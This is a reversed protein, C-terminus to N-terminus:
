VSSRRRGENRNRRACNAHAPLRARRRCGVTKARSGCMQRGGFPVVAVLQGGGGPRGGKGLPRKGECEGRQWNIKARKRVCVCVRARLRSLHVAISLSGAALRRSCVSGGGIRNTYKAAAPRRTTSLRRSIRGRVSCDSGKSSAPRTPLAVVSAFLTLRWKVLRRWEFPSSGPLPKLEGHLLLCSSLLPPPPPPPSSKKSTGVEDAAAAATRGNARSPASFGPLSSSAERAGHTACCASRRWSEGSEAGGCGIQISSAFVSSLESSIGVALVRRSSVPAAVHSSSICGLRSLVVGNRRRGVVREAPVQAQQASAATAETTKAAANASDDDFSGNPRWHRLQLRLEVQFEFGGKVNYHTALRSSSLEVAAAPKHVFRVFTSSEHKTTTRLLAPGRKM